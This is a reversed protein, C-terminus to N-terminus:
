LNAKIALRRCQTHQLKSIFDRASLERSELLSITGESRYFEVRERWFSVSEPQAIRKTSHQRCTLTEIPTNNSPSKAQQRLNHSISAMFSEVRRSLKTEPIRTRQARIAHTKQPLRADASSTEAFGITAPLFNCSASACRLLM